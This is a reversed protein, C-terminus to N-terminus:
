YRSTQEFVTGARAQARTDIQAIAERSRKAVESRSTTDRSVDGRSSFSSSEATAKCDTVTRGDGEGAETVVEGAGQPMSPAGGASEPWWRWEAPPAPSGVAEATVGRGRRHRRAADRRAVGEATVRCRRPLCRAM